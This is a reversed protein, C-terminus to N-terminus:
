RMLIYRFVLRTLWEPTWDRLVCIISFKLGVPRHVRPSQIQRLITKVVADAPLKSSGALRQMIPSVMAQSQVMPTDIVPPLIDGVHIGFTAWELNLAETLGKVAFKSASYSSQWPVGYQTAASSMNIIQAQPTQKLYPFAAHCAYFTGNVNVDFTRQHAAPDMDESHVIQMIGACNLLLRLYGHNKAAFDDIVSKVAAADCVDLAYCHVRQGDWNASLATLADINKDALGVHWGQAYLAEATARGIGSAAGTILANRALPMASGNHLYEQAKFRRTLWRFSFTFGQWNTVNKGNELVYISSCGSNWVTKRLNRQLKQNYAAQVEAKVELAALAYRRAYAMAQAIYGIQCELMYVISNHGLNTNPGYLMFFNPFGHVCTGLYAEAGHQWVDSLVRGDRGEIHIPFLFRTTHFGTGLLLVDAAFFRGQQDTVGDANIAAIGHTNLTLNSHCMAAYYNNALLIRKCGLAYDPTLQSRLATQGVERQLYYRWRLRMLKMGPKFHRFGFFRWEAGLWTLLRSLRLLRPYRAFRRKEADSYLRDNKPLVYPASRQYVTTHRALAAVAPIFQIASAGTGIVAINKDRLDYNADWRASHFVPGSFHEIGHIKPMVPMNLQGTASILFRALMVEGQTDEVRWRQIDHQWVASKVERQYEIHQGIDFHRICDHLYAEIEAQPAYRHSWDAKPYFSFSYLHSPIDCACGPYHNDHWTGGAAPQKEWICFGGLDHQKLKVAMGIGGFGAGIILTETARM